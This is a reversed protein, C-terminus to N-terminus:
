CFFNLLLKFIFFIRDMLYFLHLTVHLNEFLSEPSIYFIVYEFLLLLINIRVDYNDKFQYCFIEKL